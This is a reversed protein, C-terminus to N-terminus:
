AMAHVPEPHPGKGNLSRQTAAAHEIWGTLRGLEFNFVRQTIGSPLRLTVFEGGVVVHVVCREWRYQNPRFGLKKMHEAVAEQIQAKRM